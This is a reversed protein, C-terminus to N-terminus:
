SLHVQLPDFEEGAGYYGQFMDSGVKTLSVRTFRLEDAEEVPAGLVFADVRPGDDPSMELVYSGDAERRLRLQAFTVLPMGYHAKLAVSGSFEWAGVEADASELPFRFQGRESTIGDADIGGGPATTAYVVLSLKFSWELYGTM